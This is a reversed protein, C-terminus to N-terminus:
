KEWGTYMSKLLLTTTHPPRLDRGYMSPFMHHAGEAHIWNIERHIYVINMVIFLWIVYLFAFSLYQLSRSPGRCSTLPSFGIIIRVAAMKRLSSKSSHSSNGWADLDHLKLISSMSPFLCGFCVIIMVEYSFCPDLLLM